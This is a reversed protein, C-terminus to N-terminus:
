IVNSNLQNNLSSIRNRANELEAAMQELTSNIAQSNSELYTPKSNMLGLTPSVSSEGNMEMIPDQSLPRKGNGKYLIVIKYSFYPGQYIKYKRYIIEKKWNEYNL